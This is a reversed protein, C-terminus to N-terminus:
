YLINLYWNLIEQGYLMTIFTAGTLFPGFPVESSMKKKNILILFVGIISGVLYALFLAVLLIKWGLILGMLAGLRIDGDGVWKGKSVFFQLAFFGSGILAGLLLNGIGVGLYLNLLFVVIMAPFTIRDLILYHKLDYVFIVVLFCGATLNAFFEGGLGYRAYFLLVMLGTFLEVAPYQWSIGQQCNRCKGGLALFSVFPINDFWFIKKHCKPCESRGRWFSKKTGLRFIVVNLFSGLALGFIFLFIEIM